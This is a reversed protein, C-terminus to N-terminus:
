QGYDSLGIHRVKLAYFVGSSKHRVCHVRGFSGTGLVVGIEFDSLKAGLVLAQAKLSSRTLRVNISPLGKDAVKCVNVENTVGSLQVGGFIYLIQDKVALATSGALPLPTGALEISMWVGMEVDLAFIDNLLTNGEGVGGIVFLIRNKFGSYATSHRPSPEKGRTEMLTWSPASTNFVSVANDPGNATIGGFLVVLGNFASAAAHAHPQPAYSSSINPREWSMNITSFFYVDNRLAGDAGVGGVVIMQDDVISATHGFRSPPVDGSSQIPKWAMEDLELFLVDDDSLVGDGTRGGYIVIASICTVASHDSRAPQPPGSINYPEWVATGLNFVVVTDCPQGQEDSGGLVLM